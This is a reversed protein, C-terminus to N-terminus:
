QAGDGERDGELGLAGAGVAGRGVSQFHQSNKFESYLTFLVHLSEVTSTVPKRRGDKQQQQQQQQQQQPSPTPIDLIATLLRAYSPLSIELDVSPLQLTGLADEIEAPWVQMLEEIDPMRRSYHVTPAPKAAHLEKVNRIWSDLPKTNSRLSVSDISRIVQPVPAISKTVARLHLDLVTPDSQKGSPEDLVALGLSEPKQNGYVASIDDDDDDDGTILDHDGSEDDLKHKQSDKSLLRQPHNPMLHDSKSKSLASQSDKPSAQVIATESVSLGPNILGNRTDKKAPLDSRISDHTASLDDEGEAYEGDSDSMNSPPTDGRPPNDSADRSIKGRDPRAGHKERPADDDDDGGDDDDDEDDDDEGSELSDDGDDQESLAASDDFFGSVVATVNDDISKSDLSKLARKVLVESAKQAPEYKVVLRIVEDLDLGDWLGDSGLVFYKDKKSLEREIIEPECLVGIREACTDGISRTVVLGPYPLTGKYLRLPGEGGNESPMHDIRAGAAQVRELEVPNACTHD